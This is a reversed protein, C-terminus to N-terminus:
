SQETTRNFEPTRKDLFAAIGEAADPEYLSEIFADREADLHAGLRSQERRALLAKIRGLALSPGAALEQAWRLAAALAEGPATVRNVLGLAALRAAAVPVGTATWEYALPYPVREALAFTAGGDPSLGIRVYAMSFKADDAAVVLDCALALSFGAGAAAGEIAAIVPKPCERMAQVWAHMGDISAQQAQRPGSRNERLRNLNGGACFISGEGTLVLARIQPDSAARRVAELGTAYIDPHLANRAQPNSLTMLLVPGQRELLLRPGVPEHSATM